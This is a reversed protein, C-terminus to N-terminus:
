RPLLAPSSELQPEAPAAELVGPSLAEDTRSAAHVPLTTEGHVHRRPRHTTVNVRMRHGIGPGGGPVGKALPDPKPDLPKQEGGDDSDAPRNKLRAGLFFAAACAILVGAGLLLLDRREHGVAPPAGISTPEVSGPQALVPNGESDGPLEASSAGPVTEPQTASGAGKPPAPKPVGAAAPEKARGPAAPALPGTKHKPATSAVPGTTRGPTTSGAPGTPPKPTAPPKPAPSPKSSAKTIDFSTVINSQGTKLSCSTVTQLYVTGTANEARIHLSIDGTTVTARGPHGFSPTAVQASARIAFPGSAPATTRDMVFPAAIDSQQQPADVHASADVTGSVASMGQDALWKTLSAEATAVAQVTLTRGPRGVVVEDPLTTTIKVTFSHTGAAFPTCAYAFTRSLQRASATGVGTVGVTGGAVAFM